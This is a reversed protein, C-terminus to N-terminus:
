MLRKEEGTLYSILITYQSYMNLTILSYIISEYKVTKFLVIFLVYLNKLLLSMRCKIINFIEEYKVNLVAILVLYLM